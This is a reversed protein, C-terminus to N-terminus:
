ESVSMDSGALKLWFSQEPSISKSSDIPSAETDFDTRAQEGIHRQRKVIRKTVDEVVNGCDKTQHMASMIREKTEASSSADGLLEFAESILHGADKSPKDTKDTVKM